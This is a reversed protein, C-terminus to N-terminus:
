LSRARAAPVPVFLLDCSTEAAVAEATSGLLAQALESRRIAGMVILRANRERALRPLQQSPSGPALDVQEDRIGYEAALECVARRHLAEINESGYYVGPSVEVTGALAFEEPDPFAHAIRIEAGFTAAFKRGAELVARDMGSPEAHEHLPDLAVMIRAYGDFHPDKVLLMPVPCLRMLQWDMEVLRTHLTPHAEHAGLVLLDAQWERVARLVGEHAPTQWLVEVSVNVGWDRLTQALEELMAHESDVMGAQASFAASDTRDLGIAVATDFVCSVLRLEAGASQALARAHGAAIPLGRQSPKIAVLIRRIAGSM